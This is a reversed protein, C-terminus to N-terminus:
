YGITNKLIRDYKKINDIYRNVIEKYDEEDFYKKHKRLVKLEQKLKYQKNSAKLRKKQNIKKYHIYDINIIEEVEEGSYYEQSYNIIADTM